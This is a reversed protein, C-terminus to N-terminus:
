MIVAYGNEMLLGCECNKKLLIRGNGIIDDIRVAETGLNMAITISRKEAKNGDDQVYDTGIRSYVYLGGEARITRYKGRRLEPYNNRLGIFAKYADELEDNKDFEMPRRYEPEEIGDLGKEDGYFVCPMGVFTMQFLVALEMREKDGNCLSLFRSVDHSDLLNLQMPVAQLPYRMLMETVFSDFVEATVAKEAFFKSCYRRFDYNMAGDLMKGNIYHSANEWVEGIVIANENESKVAATFEHLFTDDVENAVDLRWGDAHFNRIWYRGVECFYKRMDPNSTDTKPMEPVYAFCVYGPAEDNRPIEPHEPLEYFWSYYKSEVGKELVDRFYPHNRFTHNFVGDIIIHMNRKHVEDALERFDDDCGRTPDVHFYDILDYKHYSAAVFFPNLYICNIGLDAIYDLNETIGKITGGLNTRCEQGEYIKMGNKCSISRKGDAFSDPFINYVVADNVWDPTRIRDAHHNFPLQFYDSRNQEDNKEFSNGIYFITEHGDNLEFYYAIRLYESCLRIEFYDYLLDSRVLEMNASYFRLRPTMAARDAYHFIVSGIDAHATRIRFIYNHADVAHAYESLPRHYVAALNM